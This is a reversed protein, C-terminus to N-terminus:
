ASCAVTEFPMIGEPVDFADHRIGYIEDYFAALRRDIAADFGPRVALAGSGSGDSVVGDRCVLRGDKFVFAADRFMAARDAGDRYAAVDARAGPALHGRDPTGLLRAPGVRTMTAIESLTYERSLSRLTTLELAEQSVTQMWEERKDRSMLLAILDPYATFPAGNPHDTTFMLRAPDESLLFLELGAAWQITNAFSTRRFSYPVIGGGNGDGDHIVSKAPSAQSRAGFQRLVDSSVTVTQGFMVQGVDATVHAPARNLAEALRAAASSFGNKGETGYAYFQVHALHLPLEGGAEMTALVTDVAGPMGLNSCHLHVPHPVGLRHQARQMAQMIRRSSIGTGPVEDDLGFARVNSKFAAAAGPNIVKLGLARAGTIARGVYDAIADDGDRMVRFLFDDNGLVALIARDIVPIQALELHAQVAVHPSIAPEVVLTYGMAAYRRGIAEGVPVSDAIEPRLEPLLLRSTNVNTGAIHSHIDLGGAMVVCGSADFAEDAVRGPGPPAVLRGGEFWLDATADHGQTPDVVRGGRLCTLM